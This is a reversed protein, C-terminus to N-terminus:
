LLKLCMPSKLLSLSIELSCNLNMKVRKHYMDYWRAAFSPCALLSGESRVFVFYPLLHGSQGLEAPYALMGNSPPTQAHLRKFSANACICHPYVLFDNSVQRGLWCIDRAM